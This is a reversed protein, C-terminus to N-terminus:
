PLARAAGTVASVAVVLVVVSRVPVPVMRLGTRETRLIMMM